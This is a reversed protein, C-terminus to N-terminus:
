VPKQDRIGVVRPPDVLNDPRAGFKLLDRRGYEDAIQEALARVSIPVGSCTNIAGQKFSLAADVIMEAAVRVDLFDRVQNGSTLEAFEGASLKSRIYPVLRRLDEGEGHLYFLRCWAFEIKHQLFIISLARFAKAKAEAYPTTPRLSTEISLDGATLDYEFCTGIGVVRRVCADVAGQAMELTGVLCDLNKESQLYKGSEAYWAVHIITDIGACAEAWWESKEAFLDKTTIVRELNRSGIVLAEKGERVIARIPLGHDGLVKLVQRGVFGTAGTLLVTPSM